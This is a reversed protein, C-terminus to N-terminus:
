FSFMKITSIDVIHFLKNLTHLRFIKKLAQHLHLQIFDAFKGARLGTFDQPKDSWLLCFAVGGNQSM